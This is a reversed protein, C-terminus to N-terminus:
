SVKVFSEPDSWKQEPFQKGKNVILHKQDNLTIAYRPLSVKAPGGTVTGHDSFTSGHCRCKIANDRTALVCGKHTCTSSMAYIQDGSRVVFLKNSKVFKDSIVNSPYDELKGVDITGGASGGGSSPGGSNGGGYPGGRAASAAGLVVLSVATAGTATVFQRRNMDSMGTEGHTVRDSVPHPPMITHLIVRGCRQLDPREILISGTGGPLIGKPRCVIGKRGVSQTDIISWCTRRRRNCSRTIVTTAENPSAIPHNSQTQTRPATLRSHWATSARREECQRIGQSDGAGAHGREESESVLTPHTSYGRAERRRQGTMTFASRCVSLGQFGAAPAPVPSSTHDRVAAADPTNEDKPV